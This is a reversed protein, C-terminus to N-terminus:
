KYMRREISEIRSEIERLHERLRLDVREEIEASSMSIIRKASELEEMLNQIRIVLSLILAGLSLTFLFAFFVVVPNFINYASLWETTLLIASVIMLVALALDRVIEESM